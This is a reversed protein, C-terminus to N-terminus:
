LFRAPLTPISCVAHQHYRAENCWSVEDLIHCGCNRKYLFDDWRDWIDLAILLFRNNVSDANSMESMYLMHSAVITFHRHTPQSAVDKADLSLYDVVKVHM